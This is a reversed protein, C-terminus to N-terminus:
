RDSWALSGRAVLREGVKCEFEVRGPTGEKFRVECREAPLLPSIFKAQPVANIAAEPHWARYASMVRALLVVGPVIPRGPFHGPLSPHDHGIEILASTEIVRASESVRAAYM